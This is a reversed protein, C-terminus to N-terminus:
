RKKITIQQKNCAVPNSCNSVGCTGVDIGFYFLHYKICNDINSFCDQGFSVYGTSCNLAENRPWGFLCEYHPDQPTFIPQSINYWVESGHHYSFINPGPCPNCVPVPGNVLIYECFPIHPFPDIYYVVRWSDPIQSDFIRSFMYDGVRPEGFTYLSVKDTINNYLLYSAALSAMAGGLSHGTVYVKYTPYKQILESMQTQLAPWMKFLADKFYPTVMGGAPWDSTPLFGQITEFLLQTVATTGRFALVIFQNKESYASFGFCTSNAPDCPSVSFTGYETWDSLPLNTLCMDPKDSYASTSLLLMEMAINPDYINPIPARCQSPNNINSDPCYFTCPNTIDLASHCVFNSGATPLECYTCNTSTCSVCDTFQNCGAVQQATLKVITFLVL